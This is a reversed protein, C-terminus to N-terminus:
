SAMRRTAWPMAPAAATKLTESTKSAELMSMRDIEGADGACPSSGATVTGTASSRNISNNCAAYGQRRPPHLRVGVIAPWDMHEAIGHFLETDIFRRPVERKCDEIYRRVAALIENRGYQPEIDVEPALKWTQFELQKTRSRRIAKKSVAYYAGQVQGGTFYLSIQGIVENYKWSGGFSDALHMRALEGQRPERKHFARTEESLHTNCYREFEADYEEQSLRYV